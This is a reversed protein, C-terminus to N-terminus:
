TGKRGGVTDGMADRFKVMQRQWLDVAMLQSIQVGKFVRKM